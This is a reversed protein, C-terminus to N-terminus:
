YRMETLIQSASEVSTIALIQDTNFNLDFLEELEAIIEIHKLSDWEPSKKRDLSDIIDSSVGIFVRLFADHIQTQNNDFQM